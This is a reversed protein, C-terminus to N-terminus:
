AAGGDDDLLDFLGGDEGALEIARVPDRRRAIRAEILPLYDAEAEIGIAHFGELLAAELTTGSGAFMDLVTGGPPTILRCLWRMLDLPKATPHAIGNVRPREDTPAKATYLVRSADTSTGNAAPAAACSVGAASPPHETSGNTDTTPSCGNCCDASCTDEQAVFFFRSCGGSDGYTDSRTEYGDAADQGYTNREGKPRTGARMMGSSREGSQQDLLAAADPDLTVHAPWRGATTTGANRSDGQLSGDMRGEYASNETPKYDAEILPRAGGEVRCGDVNLAGTGWRLVNGAVTGDLPKRCLVIPEYAPKLATGWGQWQRAADTAPATIDHTTAGNPKGHLKAWSGGSLDRTVEYSGVVEREAGAARDIAKSVDLSKPFGQGHIWMLTDRIEFGADEVGCMMRHFTRTGGFTLMHGGPKLVRLAETAWARCWQQFAEPSDHRDWTRNMFGLSYPPDTVIADVSNDDLQRLVDLADGHHIHVTM